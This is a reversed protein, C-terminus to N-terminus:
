RQKSANASNPIPAELEALNAGGSEASYACDHMQYYAIIRDDHHCFTSFFWHIAPLEAIIQLLPHITPRMRYLGYGVGLVLLLQLILLGIPYLAAIMPGKRLRM